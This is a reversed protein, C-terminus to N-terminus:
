KSLDFLNTDIHSGQTISAVAANEGIISMVTEKVSCAALQM